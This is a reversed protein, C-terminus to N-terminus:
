SRRRPTWRFLRSAKGCRWNCKGTSTGFSPTGTRISQGGGRDEPQEAPQLENRAATARGKRPQHSTATRGTRGGVDSHKQLDLAVAVGSRGADATRGLVGAVRAVPSRAPDVFATRRGCPSHARLPLAPADLEQIGKMITVRSLGCARSVLSVGGYGVQTAEAAALMRRSRENLHPWLSQLKRRVAQLSVM